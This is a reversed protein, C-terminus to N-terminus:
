GWGSNLHLQAVHLRLQLLRVLRVGQRLLDHRVEDRQPPVLQRQAVLHGRGTGPGLELGVCGAGHRAGAGAGALLPLVPM